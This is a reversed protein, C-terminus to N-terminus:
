YAIANCVDLFRRLVKRLEIERNGPEAYESRHFRKIAVGLSEGRVLRMAYFPRGDGHRGLGYVPVIGPPELSGTIEAERLFRAQNAPNKAREAQLEKIAVARRLEEDRAVHVEGLGGRAHLRLWQYRSHAPVNGKNRAANRALTVADHETDPGVPPELAR